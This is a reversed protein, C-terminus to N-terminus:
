CRCAGNSKPTFQHWGQHLRLFFDILDFNPVLSKNRAPVPNAYGYLWSVLTNTKPCGRSGSEGEYSYVSPNSVPATGEKKEMAIM